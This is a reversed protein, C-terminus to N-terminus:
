PNQQWNGFWSQRHLEVYRWGCQQRNRLGIMLHWPIEPHLEQFGESVLGAAEGIIELTRAVAEQVM